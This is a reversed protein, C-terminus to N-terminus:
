NPYTKCTDKLYIAFISKIVDITCKQQYEDFSLFYLLDLILNFLNYNINSLILIKYITVRSLNERSSTNSAIDIKHNPSDIISRKGNTSFNLLKFHLNSYFQIKKSKM